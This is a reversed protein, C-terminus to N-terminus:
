SGHDDLSPFKKLEHEEPLREGLIEQRNAHIVHEIFAIYGHWKRMYFKNKSVSNLSKRLGTFAKLECM